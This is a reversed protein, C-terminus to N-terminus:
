GPQFPRYVAPRALMRAPRRGAEHGATSPAVRRWSLTLAFAAVTGIGGAVAIVVAPTVMEAATGVAVFGAGQGVIVGMGAIGFAQARREDPVRVVFATNVAIQYAGFAASASFIVLSVALGPHLATLVLIACTAVALPGMLSLRRPPRVLRSFLPTGIATALTTSALVLGTAVPGGGLRAAYPAAIAQPITYFVVLWGLLVLTRLARDGFVLRLGAVARALPSGQAGPPAAPAAPAPRARTGLGILLGSAVFTAADIILAPRVGLFAVAIGGGAAGAVEATLYTTQIVATGLTYREGSLIDPTISARASEFPPAFVTAAFLLMVLATVPMGPVAMATVLAARIADCGVMVTRRPRRDALDALFLGGILWPLYGAAYAAAALLPSRTHDYVLLTLAVLALRDGAASLVVSSWLARFERVAFVDGFTARGPAAATM